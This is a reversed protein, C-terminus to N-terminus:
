ILAIVNAAPVPKHFGKLELDGVHELEAIQEVATRVRASIVIQGDGAVACLRAALNCVNGM